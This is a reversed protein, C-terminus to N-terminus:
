SHAQFGAKPYPFGVSGAVPATFGSPNGMAKAIKLATDWEYLFETDQGSYIVAHAAFGEGEIAPFVSLAASM